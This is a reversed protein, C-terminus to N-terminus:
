HTNGSSDSSPHIELLICM